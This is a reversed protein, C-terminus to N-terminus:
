GRMNEVLIKGLVQVKTKWDVEKGTKWDVEKGLQVSKFIFECLWKSLM